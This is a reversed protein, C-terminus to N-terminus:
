DECEGAPKDIVYIGLFDRTQAEGRTHPRSWRRQRKRRRGPSGDLSILPLAARPHKERRQLRRSPHHAHRAETKGPAPPPRHGRRNQRLHRLSDQGFHARRQSCAGDQVVDRNGSSKWMSFSGLLHEDSIGLPNGNDEVGIRYVMQGGGEGLRYNMQTTLHKVREADPEFLTLKYETSGEDNEAGVNTTVHDVPDKGAVFSQVFKEAEEAIPDRHPEDPFETGRQARRRAKKTKRESYVKMISPLSAKITSQATTKPPEPSKRSSRKKRSGM